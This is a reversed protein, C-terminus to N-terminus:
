NFHFLRQNLPNCGTLGALGFGLSGLFHAIFLLLTKIWVIFPKRRDVACINIKARM